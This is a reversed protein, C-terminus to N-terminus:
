VRRLCCCLDFETNCNRSDCCVCGPALSKSSKGLNEWPCVDTRNRLKIEVTSSFEACGATYCHRIARVGAAMTGRKRARARRILTHFPHSLQLIAEFQFRRLRSLPSRVLTSVARHTITTLYARACVSIITQPSAFTFLYVFLSLFFSSVSVVRLPNIM